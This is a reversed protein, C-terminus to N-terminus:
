TMTKDLFDDILSRAITMKSPLEPLNDASFWQADEIELRDPRIEGDAFVATFGIMLSHPFPWPQSAFYRIDKIRINVEEKVERIVADELTEGPEVFGALTTYMGKRHHHSRALLIEHDRRIAMIVAPSIRPYCLLECKPCKKAMEGSMDGVESGCRGCYQHAKDWYLIQTARGAITFLDDELHGFLKRLSIPKWSGPLPSEEHLEVVYCHIGKYEGLYRRRQFRLESNVLDQCIPIRPSVAEDVVVLKNEHFVFWYAPELQVEPPQARKILPTRMSFASLKNM